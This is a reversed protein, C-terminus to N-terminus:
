QKRRAEVKVHRIYLNLWFISKLFFRVGILAFAIPVIIELTWAPIGSFAIMGDEFDLRIWGAGYWAILLCIWASFQGVFFQILRHTNRSFARTLLDIRIHKDYRTAVTAGILGLWLVMARLLPDVWVFGFEFLNRLLIQMSALLIMSTLLLVLLADEVRHLQKIWTHM